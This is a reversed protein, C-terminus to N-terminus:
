HASARQVVAPEQRRFFQFYGFALSFVIHLGIAM